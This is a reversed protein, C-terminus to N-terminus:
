LKLALASSSPKLDVNRDVLWHKPILSQCCNISLVKGNSILIQPHVQPQPYPKATIHTTSGPAQGIQNFWMACSYGEKIRVKSQTTDHTLESSYDTFSSFNSSPALGLIHELSSNQKTYSAYYTPPFIMIFYINKERICM